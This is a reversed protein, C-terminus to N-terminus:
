YIWPLQYRLRDNSQFYFRRFSSSFLLIFIDLFLCYTKSYDRILSSTTKSFVSSLSFHWYPVHSPLILHFARLRHFEHRGSPPRFPRILLRWLCARRVVPVSGQKGPKTPTTPESRACIVYRLFHFWFSVRQIPIHGGLLLICVSDGWHLIGM